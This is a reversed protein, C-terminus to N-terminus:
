LVLYPILFVPDRPLPPPLSPRFIAQVLPGELRLRIRFPLRDAQRRIRPGHVAASWTSSASRDFGPLLRPYGAQPLPESVIDWEVKQYAPRCFPRLVPDGRGSNGRSIGKSRRDEQSLQGTEPDDEEKLGPPCPRRARQHDAHPLIDGRDRSLTEGNARLVGPRLCHNDLVRAREEVPHRGMGGM